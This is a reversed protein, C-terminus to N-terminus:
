IMNRKAMRSKVGSWSINPVPCGPCRLEVQVEQSSIPLADLPLPVKQPNEPHPPEQPPEVERQNMDILRCNSAKEGIQEPKIETDQPLSLSPCLPLASFCFFFFFAFQQIQSVKESKSIRM